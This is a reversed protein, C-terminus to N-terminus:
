LLPMDMCDFARMALNSAPTGPYADAFLSWVMTDVLGGAPSQFRRRLTAEHSFGLKEPIRTSPTNGPDCHIEIRDVRAIEFGTRVMAMAAETAYGRGLHGAGTLYGVELARAGVRPYLGTEGILTKGERDFVAYRFDEDRDFRARYERLREATQALSAPEDEMWPIYPRLHQDSADILARLRPADSPEWCRILLRATEIRYTTRGTM